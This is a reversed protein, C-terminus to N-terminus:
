TPVARRERAAQALLELLPETEDWGICADTISQGYCLPVGAVLDQRGAVLHSELMVGMVRRSGGRVQEAVERAVLPQRSHDKQSNGHSCDILVHPRLGARALSEAARAVHEPGYNPGRSGGRLIVHCSENGRTAVIASLGEHTVGTFHHPHAAARVADVAIEVNGDTANKFGVPMSLGSALQRHIQSETTRAGITGWTVLSAIFQPIITDLFETGAPVGLQALDLLLKRALRLGRNIAFSGDLDPDNILGKWGVTTRPKEFYVRMVVLIHDALRAAVPALRSAYELAAQPDHISCPGAVVLLRDDRGHVIDEVARRASAVITSTRETEPLEEALIAPPILPRIELVRLDDTTQLMRLM